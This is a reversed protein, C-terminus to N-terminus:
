AAARARKERRYNRLETTDGGNKAVKAILADEKADGSVQSLRGSGRLPVDINAPEKRGVTRGGEIRAVEAALKIPNTITALQALRNPSKGLAKIFLAPNKAAMVITSQQANTLADVVADESEKFTPGLKAAEAKYTGLETQWSQTASEQEQNGARVQEDAKRENDQWALLSSEFKEPDGECDDWLDPKKTRQVPPPQRAIQTLLRTKEKLQDRLLKILPTEEGPAEDDFTEPFQAADDIPEIADDGDAAAVTEPAEGLELVDDESADAGANLIEVAM